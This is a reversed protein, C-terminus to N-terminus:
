DIKEASYFFSELITHNWVNSYDKQYDNIFDDLDKITRPIGRGINIKEIIPLTKDHYALDGIIFVDKNNNLENKVKDKTIEKITYITDNSTNKVETGAVMFYYFKDFTVSYVRDYFGEYVNMLNDLQQLTKIEKPVLKSNSLKQILTRDEADYFLDGMVFISINEDKLNQVAEEKTIERIIYVKQNM